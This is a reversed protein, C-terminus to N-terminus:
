LAVCLSFSIGSPSPVRRRCNKGKEFRRDQGGANLGGRSRADCINGDAEGRGFDDLATCVCGDPTDEFGATLRVFPGVDAFAEVASEEILTYPRIRAGSKVVSRGSITVDHSLVAGSEVFATADVYVGDTNEIIVGHRLLKKLIEHRLCEAVFPYDASSLLAAGAKLPVYKAESKDEGNVLVWGAGFFINKKESEARWVLAEVASRP